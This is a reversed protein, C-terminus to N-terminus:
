FCTYWTALFIWAVTTFTAWNRSALYSPELPTHQAVTNQALACCQALECCPSYATIMACYVFSYSGNDGDFTFHYVHKFISLSARMRPCLLELLHYFRNTWSWLNPYNTQKFITQGALACWQALRVIMNQAECPPNRPYWAPRLLRCAWKWIKM